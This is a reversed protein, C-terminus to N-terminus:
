GNYKITKQNALGIKRKHEETLKKGRNFEKLIKIHNESLRCGTRDPPPNDMNTLKSKWRFILRKEIELAEKSTLNEFIKYVLPKFGLNKINNIYDLKKKNVKHKPQFHAWARKNKGKGVYFPQKNIPDILAYVYCEM